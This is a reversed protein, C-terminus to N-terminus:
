HTFRECNVHYSSFVLSIAGDKKDAGKALVLKCKPETARSSIKSPQLVRVDSQRVESLQQLSIQKASVLCLAHVHVQVMVRAQTIERTLKAHQFSQKDDDNNNNIDINGTDRYTFLM